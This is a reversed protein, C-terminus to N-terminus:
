GTLKKVFVLARVDPTDPWFGPSLREAVSYGHKLYFPVARVNAESTVLHIGNVGRARMHEEFRVILASGAGKSQFGPLMNIHLHAPYEGRIRAPLPNADGYRKFHLVTRLTGPYRWSSYLLARLAIRPAMHRSFRKEQRATTDTGLIYGTVRGSGEERAVFCHEPEYRVYHLAFIMAFLHRDGFLGTGTLDEGNHGTRYCIDEIACADTDRLGHICSFSIGM